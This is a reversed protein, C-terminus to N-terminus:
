IKILEDESVNLQVVDDSVAAVQERLAYRKGRLLGANIRVFGNYQLRRQLVQPMQGNPDFLEKFNLRLEEDAMPEMGATTEAIVGPRDHQDAAAGMFLGAVKGVEQNHQDVVKMGDRVQALLDQTAAPQTIPTQTM